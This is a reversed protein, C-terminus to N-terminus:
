LAELTDRSAKQGVRSAKSWRPQRESRPKYLWDGLQVESRRIRCKLMFQEIKMYAPRNINMNYIVITNVPDLVNESPSNSLHDHNIPRPQNSLPPRGTALYMLSPPQERPNARMPQGQNTQLGPNGWPSHVRNNLTEILRDIKNVLDTHHDSGISQSELQNTIEKIKVMNSMHERNSQSLEEIEASLKNMIEDALPANRKSMAQDLMREVKNIIGGWLESSNSIVMM